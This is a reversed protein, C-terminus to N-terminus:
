HIREGIHEGEQGWSPAKRGEPVRLEAWREDGSRPTLSLHWSRSRCAPLQLQPIRSPWEIIILGGQGLDDLGLADFAEDGQMRWADVHWIPLRAAYHNMLAYSPSSVAWEDGGLAATLLRTCTTKGSGMPGDLLLLDDAQLVEALAVTLAQSDQVSTLRKCLLTM